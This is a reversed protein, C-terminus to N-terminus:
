DGCKGDNSQATSLVAVCSFAAVLLSTRLTTTKNQNSMIINRLTLFLIGLLINFVRACRFM